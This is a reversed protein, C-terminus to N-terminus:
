RQLQVRHSVVLLRPRGMEMIGRNCLKVALHQMELSRLLKEIQCHHYSIRQCGEDFFRYYLTLIVM